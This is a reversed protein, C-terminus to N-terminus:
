LTHVDSVTEVTETINTYHDNDKYKRFRIQRAIKDLWMYEMQLRNDCELFVIQSATKRIVFIKEAVPKNSCLWFILAEIVHFKRPWPYM